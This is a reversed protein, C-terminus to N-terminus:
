LDRQRKSEGEKKKKSGGSFCGSCGCAVCQLTGKESSASTAKHPVRCICSGKFATNRPDICQMCCLTEYGPVRWTKSLAGDVWGNSTCYDLLEMSIKKHKFCMDYIYRTRRYNISSLPWTTEVKRKASPPLSSTPPSACSTNLVADKMEAEFMDLQESILDMGPPPKRVGPRIKPM